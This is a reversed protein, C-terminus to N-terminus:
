DKTPNNHDTEPQEGARRANEADEALSFTGDGNNIITGDKVLQEFARDFARRIAQQHSARERRM